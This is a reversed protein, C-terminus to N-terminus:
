LKCDSKACRTECALSACSWRPACAHMIILYSRKARAASLLPARQISPV